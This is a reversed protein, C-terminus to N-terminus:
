LCSELLCNRIIICVKKKTKRRVRLVQHSSKPQAAVQKRAEVVQKFKEAMRSPSSEEIIDTDRFHMPPTLVARMMTESPIASGNSTQNASLRM